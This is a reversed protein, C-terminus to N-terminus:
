SRRRSIIDWSRAYWPPACVASDAREEGVAQHRQTDCEQSGGCAGYRGRHLQLGQAAAARPQSHLRADPWTPLRSPTAHRANQRRPDRTALHAAAPTDAIYTYPRQASHTTHASRPCAFDPPLPVALLLSAGRPHVTASNCLHTCAFLSGVALPQESLIMQMQTFNACSTDM